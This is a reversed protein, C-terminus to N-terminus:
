STILTDRLDKDLLYILDPPGSGSWEFFTHTTRGFYALWDAGANITRPVHSVEFSTFNKTAYCIDRISNRLTWPPELGRRTMKVLQNSDMKPWVKCISNLEAAKLAFLVAKIEAELPTNAKVPAGVALLINGNNTRAVYGIGDVEEHTFSGDINM